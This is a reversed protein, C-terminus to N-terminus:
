LRVMEEAKNVEKNLPPQAEVQSHDTYSPGRTVFGVGLVILVIGVWRAPSIQEHLWFRSLLAVVVYGFATSPLVFTLDAWSLATLYSAFFGLLLLIGAFVWPNALAHILSGLHHVSVPGFDKMGKGLFTDGLSGTLMVAALVLYRHFTMTSQHTKKM